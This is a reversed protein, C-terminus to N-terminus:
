QEVRVLKGDPKVPMLRLPHPEVLPEHIDGDNYVYVTYGGPMGPVPTVSVHWCFRAWWVAQNKVAEVALADEVGRRMWDKVSEGKRPRGYLWVIGEGDEGLNAGLYGHASPGMGGDPYPEARYSNFTGHM